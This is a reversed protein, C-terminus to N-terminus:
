MRRSYWTLFLTKEVKWGLECLALAMFDRSLGRFNGREKEKVNFRLYSTRTAITNSCNVDDIFKASLAKLLSFYKLFVLAWAWLFISRIDCDDCFVVAATESSVMSDSIGNKASPESNTSSSSGQNSRRDRSWDLVCLSHCSGKGVPLFFGGGDNGGESRSQYQSNSVLREVAVISKRPSGYSCYYSWPMHCRQVLSNSCYKIHLICFIDVSVIFYMDCVGAYRNDACYKNHIMIMYKEGRSNAVSM